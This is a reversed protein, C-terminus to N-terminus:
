QQLAGGRGLVSIVALRVMLLPIYKMESPSQEFFKRAHKSDVNTQHM